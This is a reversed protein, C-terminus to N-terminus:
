VLTVTIRRGDPYVRRWRNRLATMGAKRRSPTRVSIWHNASFWPLEVGEVAVTALARGQFSEFSRSM